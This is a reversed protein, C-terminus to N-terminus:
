KEITALYKELNGPADIWTWFEDGQPIEGSTSAVPAAAESFVFSSLPTVRCLPSIVCLFTSRFKYEPAFAPISLVSSYTSIRCIAYEFSIIDLAQIRADHRVVSIFPPYGHVPFAATRVRTVRATSDLGSNMATYVLLSSQRRLVADDYM